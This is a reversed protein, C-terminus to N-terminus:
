GGDGADSAEGDTGGDTSADGADGSRWASLAIEVPFRSGDRRLGVVNRTHPTHLAEERAAMVLTDRLPTQQDPTFLALVTKGVAESEPYGFMAEASRNWSIISGQQNLLVIGEMVAQVRRPEESLVKASKVTPDWDARTAYDQTYDFVEEPSRKVWVSEAATVTVRAM